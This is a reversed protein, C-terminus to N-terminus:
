IVADITDTTLSFTVANTADLNVLQVSYKGTLLKILNSRRTTSATSAMTLIYTAFSSLDGGVDTVDYVNVQVGSTAAVTGFVVKACLQMEFIGSADLAYQSSTAGAGLSVANAINGEANFTMAPASM